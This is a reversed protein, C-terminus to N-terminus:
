SGFRVPEPLAPRLLRRTTALGWDDLAAMSDSSSRLGASREIWAAWREREQVAPAVLLCDPDNIWFRGHQWERAIGAHMANASSPLSEDGSPHELRVATDPSVRMVDVLGLSPLIPAGCGLLIADPGVAARITQLGQRYAQVSTAPRARRGAPLAGAYLFDLKFFGFGM